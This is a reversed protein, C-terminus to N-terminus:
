RKNYKLGVFINLQILCYEKLQNLQDLGKLNLAKYIEAKDVFHSARNRVLNLKRANEFWEKKFKSVLNFWIENVNRYDSDHSNHIVINQLDPHFERYYESEYRVLEKMFEPNRNNVFSFFGGEIKLLKASPNPKRQRQDEILAQLKELKNSFSQPLIDFKDSTFRHLELGDELLTTVLHDLVLWTELIILRPNSSRKITRRVELVTEALPVFEVLSVLIRDSMNDIDFERFLAEVRPRSKSFLEDPTIKKIKNM